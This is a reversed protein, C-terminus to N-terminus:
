WARPGFTYAVALLVLVAVAVTFLRLATMAPATTIVATRAPLMPPASLIRAKLGTSAAAAELAAVPVAADHAVVAHASAAVWDALLVGPVRQLAAVLQAILPPSLDSAVAITTRTLKHGERPNSQAFM